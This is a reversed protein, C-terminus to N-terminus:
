RGLIEQGEAAAADVAESASVEDYMARGLQESLVEEIRPWQPNPVPPRGCPMADVFGELVPKSEALEPSELLENTTPLLTGFQDEITWIRQAEDGALFELWKWAADKNEASAFMVVNDGAITTACGADGEPLPATAWKGDIKPFEERLVGALWAGAVYM